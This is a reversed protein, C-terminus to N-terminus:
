KDDGEKNLQRFLKAYNAIMIDGRFTSLFRERSNKSLSERDRWQKAARLFGDRISLITPEVLWGNEGEIVMEGMGGVDTLFLPKGQRMAEIAAMPMGEDRSVLTFVDMAELIHDVDNRKGWFVVNQLHECKESLQKKLPGDGVINLEFVQQIDVPLSLFGDILLDFGKRYGITGVSVIKIPLKQTENHPNLRFTAIDDLGNYIVVCKAIHEPYLSTFNAKAKNSLFVIKDVRSLSRSLAGELWKRTKISKELFPYTQFIMKLPTGDSHLVLAARCKSASNIAFYASCSFLDQFFLITGEQSEPYSRVVREANNIFAKRLFFMALPPFKAAFEIIKNKLYSKLYGRSQMKRKNFDVTATSDLSYVDFAIDDNEEFKQKFYRLFTAVGNPAKIYGYYWTEVKTVM